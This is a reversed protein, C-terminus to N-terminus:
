HRRDLWISMNWIIAAGLKPVDQQAGYIDGSIQVQYLGVWLICIGTGVLWHEAIVADFVVAGIFLTPPRKPSSM